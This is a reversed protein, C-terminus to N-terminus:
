SKPFGAICLKYMKYDQLIISFLSSTPDAVGMVTDGVSDWVIVHKCAKSWGCGSFPSLRHFDCRPIPM